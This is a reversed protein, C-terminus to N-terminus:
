SAAFVSTRTPSDELRATQPLISLMSLMGNSDLPPRRMWSNRCNTSGPAMWPRACFTGATSNAAGAAEAKVGAKERGLSDSTMRITKSHLPCFCLIACSPALLCLDWANPYWPECLLAAQDSM